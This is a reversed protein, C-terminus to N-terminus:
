GTRPNRAIRRPGRDVCGTRGHATHGLARTLKGTTDDTANTLNCAARDAPYSLEGTTRSGCKAAIAAARVHAAIGQIVHGVTQQAAFLRRGLLKGVILYAAFDHVDQASNQAGALHWLVIQVIEAARKGRPGVQGRRLDPPEPLELRAKETRFALELIQQVGLLRKTRANSNPFRAHISM